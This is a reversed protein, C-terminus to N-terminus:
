PHNAMTCRLPEQTSRSTIDPISNIQLTGLGQIKLDMILTVDGNSHYHPTTKLTIGLDEYTFQPTNGVQVQGRTSIAVNSFTSNVIPFRTGVRFTAVEGDITRLMMHELNTAVSSNM